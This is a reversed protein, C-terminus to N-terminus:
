AVEPRNLPTHSRQVMRVIYEADRLAQRLTWNRRTMLRALYLAGDTWVHVDPILQLTNVSPIITLGSRRLEALTARVAEDDARTDSTGPATEKESYDIRVVGVSCSQPSESTLVSVHFSGEGETRERWETLADTLTEGYKRLDDWEATRQIPTDLSKFGRPRIAPMLVDVTERVLSRELPSLSFYDFVDEDFDLVDRNTLYGRTQYFGALQSLDVMRKEVRDLAKQASEPDPASGVSFLPFTMVDTLHVANRQCLMKWGRMMLFYRALSSRLYAATFRLLAVDAETGGIAAISVTFSAPADFYSARISLDERSFGDSFLVRPGDFVRFLGDDTSAVELHAEPWETLDTPYLVPSGGRLADNPVFPRSRFRRSSVSPRSNDTLHVGKRFVWQGSADSGTRFQGLTGHSTLRTWLSLDNADGWMLTTLMQPDQAVSITQVTHRDASQMTLRGYALSMDAKPVYYEFTEDFPIGSSSENRGVGVLLHCTNENTPFLLNQLDGFNVLRVPKVRKLFHSVFRKSTPALFQSIPLILCLRGNESLFDLARIAYAGAVQRRVFPVKAIKVWKDAPTLTDSPPEKWPPNSIILDFRRGSFRHDIAFFDGSEGHQLNTGDLSPLVAAEREQAEMIDAPDLDELLSLYLSFATVRCAM